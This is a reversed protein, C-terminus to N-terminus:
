KKSNLANLHEDLEQKQKSVEVLMDMTMHRIKGPILRLLDQKLASESAGCGIAFTDERCMRNEKDCEPGLLVIKGEIWGQSHDNVTIVEVNQAITGLSALVEWIARFVPTAVKANM